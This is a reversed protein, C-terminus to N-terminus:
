AQDVLNERRANERKRAARRRRLGPLAEHTIERLMEAHTMGLERALGRLENCVESRDILMMQDDYRRAVHGSEEM